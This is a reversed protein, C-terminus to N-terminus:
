GWTKKKESPKDNENDHYEITDNAYINEPPSVAEFGSAVM